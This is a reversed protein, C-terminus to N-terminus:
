KNKPEQGFRELIQCISHYYQEFQFAEAAHEYANRGMTKLVERDSIIQEMKEVLDELSRDRFVYGTEGQKIYSATGNDSGGIAPVSFSMAELHSILAPEGSSPGVFLDSKKYEANIQSKNLNCQLTVYDDLRHERIYHALSDYIKQHFENSLEGAIRLHIDPYKDKLIEVAKLMLPLNKREEYKGVTFINIRGGQFYEKEEPTVQPEVLFPAWFADEDETKGSFDTGITLCPTIWYRPTLKRVIKHLLDQKLPEGWIPNLRYLCVPIHYYQCIAYTFVSYLSRERTIVIDPKFRKIQAALKFLPPFGCKVKLNIAMPNSRALIHVYIYDFFRYILSYGIVTPEIDTYDEIRGAYQSCFLVEDGHKLWGRVIGNMNTHYRHAMYMVKM